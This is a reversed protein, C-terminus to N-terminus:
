GQKMQWPNQHLTLLDICHRLVKDSSCYGLYVQHLPPVSSLWMTGVCYHILMLLLFSLHAICHFISLGCCWVVSDVLYAVSQTASLGKFM